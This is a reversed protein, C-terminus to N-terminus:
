KTNGPINRKLEDLYITIEDAIRSINSKTEPETAVASMDSICKIADKISSVVNYIQENIMRQKEILESYNIEEASVTSNVKSAAM